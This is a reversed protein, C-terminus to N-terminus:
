GRAGFIANGVRIHTAGAAIASTFDASMGMSLCSVGGKKALAALQRFYPVPDHAAPPICMLGAVPLGYQERCSALFADLDGPAIGSKQPEQGINVEIFCAIRRGQKRMEEGLAAALRPRDVSHIADFLGVAARVKNTQLPGIMHLSIDPWREKLPAFKWEAEQVRNEGFIRQGAELALSLASAPQTKSVAVLTVAQPNRGAAHAAEDM